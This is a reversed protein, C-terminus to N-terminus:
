SRRHLRAVQLELRKVERLVRNKNLEMWYWMKLMAVAMTSWFLLAAWRLQLTTTEARLFEILAWISVGFFVLSWVFVLLVLFRQRGRFTELVQALIHPEAMEEDTLPPGHEDRHLERRIKDDLTDM